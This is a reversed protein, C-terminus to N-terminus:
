LVKSHLNCLPIHKRGLDLTINWEVAGAGEVGAHYLVTDNM